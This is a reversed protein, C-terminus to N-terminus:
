KGCVKPYCESIEVKEMISILIPKSREYLLMILIAWISTEKRNKAGM